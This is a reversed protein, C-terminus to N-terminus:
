VPASNSSEPSVNHESLVVINPKASRKPLPRIPRSLVTSTIIEMEDSDTDGQSDDEIDDSDTSDSSSSSSSTESDSNHSGGEGDDGHVGTASRDEFVGLGLNMQIYNEQNPDINEIDVSSPDDRARNALDENSAQLQPLFAQVRALLETPPEVSFTSRDGFDFAPV